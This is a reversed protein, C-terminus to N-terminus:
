RRTRRRVAGAIPLMSVPATRGCLIACNLFSDNFASSFQTVFLPALRRKMLLWFINPRETM